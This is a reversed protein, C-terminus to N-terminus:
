IQLAVIAWKVVPLKLQQVQSLIVAYVEICVVLASKYCEKVVVVVVVHDDM